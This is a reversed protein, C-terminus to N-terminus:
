GVIAVVASKATINMTSICFLLYLSSKECKKNLTIQIRRIVYRQSFPNVNMAHVKSTDGNTRIKMAAESLGAM